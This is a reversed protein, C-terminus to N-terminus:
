SESQRAYVRMPKGRKTCAAAKANICRGKRHHVPRQPPTAAKATTCRGMEPRLFNRIDLSNVEKRRTYIIPPTKLGHVRNTENKKEKRTQWFSDEQGGTIQNPPVIDPEAGVFVLLEFLIHTVEGLRVFGADVLLHLLAEELVDHLNLVAAVFRPVDALSLCDGVKPLDYGSRRRAAVRM